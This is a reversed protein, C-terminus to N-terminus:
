RRGLPRVGRPDAARHRRQAEFRAEAVDLAQDLTARELGAGGDAVAGLSARAGEDVIAMAQGYLREAVVRENAEAAEVRTAQDWGLWESLRISSPQCRFFLDLDDRTLATAGSDGGTEGQSGTHRDAVEPPSDDGRSASDGQRGRTREQHTENTM